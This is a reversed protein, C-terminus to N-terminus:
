KRKHKKSIHRFAHEKSPFNDIDGTKKHKAIYKDSGIAEKGVTYLHTAGEFVKHNDFKKEDDSSPSQYSLKGVTAPFDTLKYETSIKPDHKEIGHSDDLIEEEKDALKLKKKMFEERNESTVVSRSGKKEREKRMMEQIKNVKNADKETLSKNGVAERVEPDYKDKSSLYKYKEETRGM